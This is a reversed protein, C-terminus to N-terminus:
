GGGEEIATVASCRSVNKVMSGVLLGEVLPQGVGASIPYAQVNDTKVYGRREYFAILEARSSLVSMRFVAPNFHSKAYEEAQFLMQKGLGQNQHAPATALMGIHVDSDVHRLHVCAVIIDDICLLLILSQPIFLDLVQDPTTRDGAVLDAEHTWGQESSRPRYAQNVLRSIKEADATSAIRLKIQM